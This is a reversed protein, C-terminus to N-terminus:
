LLRSLVTSQNPRDFYSTYPECPTCKGIAWPIPHRSFLLPRTAMKFQRDLFTVSAQHFIQKSQTTTYNQASRQVYLSSTTSLCRNTCVCTRYYVQWSKTIWLRSMKIRLTDLNKTRSRYYGFIDSPKWLHGVIESSTGFVKGNIALLDISQDNLTIRLEDRRTHGHRWHSEKSIVYLAFNSIASQNLCLANKRLKRELSPLIVSEQNAFRWFYEWKIPQARSRAM